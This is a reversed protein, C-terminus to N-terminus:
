KLNWGLIIGLIFFTVLSPDFWGIDPLLICGLAFIYGCIQLLNSLRMKRMKGIM